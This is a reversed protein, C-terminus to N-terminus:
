ERNHNQIYFNRQQSFDNESCQSHRTYLSLQQQNLFCFNLSPKVHLLQSPITHDTHYIVHINQLSQFPQIGTGWVSPCLLSTTMQTEKHTNESILIYNIQPTSMCLPSLTPPIFFLSKYLLVISNTGSHAIIYRIMLTHSVRFIIQEFIPTHICNVM